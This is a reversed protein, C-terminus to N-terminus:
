YRLVLHFADGTCTNQQLYRTEDWSLCDMNIPSAPEKGGFVPLECLIGDETDNANNLMEVLEDLNKAKNFDTM